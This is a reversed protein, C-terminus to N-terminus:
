SQCSEVQPVHDFIKIHPSKKEERFKKQFYVKVLLIHKVNQHNWSALSWTYPYTDQGHSHLVNRSNNTWRLAAWDQCADPLDGVTHQSAFCIQFLSPKLFQSVCKVAHCKVSSTRMHCMVSCTRMHCTVSYTRVHFAVSCMMHSFIQSNHNPLSFDYIVSFIQIAALRLLDCIFDLHM